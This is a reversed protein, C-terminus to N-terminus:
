AAIKGAVGLRLALEDVTAMYLARGVPGEPIRASSWVTAGTVLNRAMIHAASRMDPDLAAVVAAVRAAIRSERLSDVTEADYGRVRPSYGKTSPCETPYGAVAKARSESRWWLLLLDAVEDPIHVSM